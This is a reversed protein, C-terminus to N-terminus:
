RATPNTVPPSASPWRVPNIVGAALLVGFGVGLALLTRLVWPASHPGFWRVLLQGKRTQTLLWEQRWLGHVCLMATTGGILFQESIM